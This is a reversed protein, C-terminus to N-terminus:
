CTRLFQAPVGVGGDTCHRATPAGGFPGATKEEQQHPDHAGAEATETGAYGNLNTKTFGPSVANVRIGEKELEIAM